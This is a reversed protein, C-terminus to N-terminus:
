LVLIFDSASEGRYSLSGVERVVNSEFSSVDFQSAIYTLVFNLNGVCRLVLDTLQTLNLISM